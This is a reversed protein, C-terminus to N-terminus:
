EEARSNRCIALISVGFPMSILPALHCDLTFIHYLIANVLPGGLDNESRLRMGSRKVIQRALLIPVFLLWNFYYSREVEFGSQELAKLLDAKRYRRKHHAIEDQIGWLIRFAPVTVLLRGGPKLVRRMERLARRDDGVHEIIDTSLIVDFHADSHPLECADGKCVPPLGKAACFRIAEDHSDLGEVRHFGEESLMRLNTGTGVGIDLIRADRPLAFRALERAFLKRRARFWWHEAEVAAEAAFANAEM